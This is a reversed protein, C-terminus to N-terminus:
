TASAYDTHIEERTNYVYCFMEQISYRHNMVTTSMQFATRRRRRRCIIWASGSVFRDTIGIARLLQPPSLTGTQSGRTKSESPRVYEAKAPRFLLCRTSKHACLETM